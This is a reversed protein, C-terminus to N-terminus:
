RDKDINVVGIACSFSFLRISHDYCYSYVTASPFPTCLLHSARTRDPYIDYKNALKSQKFLEWPLQDPSDAHCM